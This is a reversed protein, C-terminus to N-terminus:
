LRTMFNWNCWLSLDNPQLKLSYKKSKSGGWKSWVFCNFIRSNLTMRMPSSLSQYDRLRSLDYDSPARGHWKLGNSDFVCLAEGGVRKGHTKLTPKRFTLELYTSCRVGQQKSNQWEWALSWEAGLLEACNGQLHQFNMVEAYFSIM